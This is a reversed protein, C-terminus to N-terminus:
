LKQLVTQKIRELPIADVNYETIEKKRAVPMHFVSYKELVFTASYSVDQYPLETYIIDMPVDALSLFVSLGSGLMIVREAKQTLCFLDELALLRAKVNESPFASSGANIFVDYGKQLLQMVIDQWFDSSLETISTAEPALIVFKRNLKLKKMIEATKKRTEASVVPLCPKVNVPVHCSTRIFDYFNSNEERNMNTVIDPTSCIFRQHKRKLIVEQTMGKQLFVRMIENQLLKIYKVDIDIKNKVFMEYYGINKQHWVILLPKKSKNVKLREKLLMLEITTEGINHRIIYIDDYKPDIQKQLKKLWKKRWNFKWVPIQLIKFYKRNYRLVKLGALYLTWHHNIDYKM